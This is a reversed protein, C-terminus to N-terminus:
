AGESNLLHRRIFFDTLRFAADLDAPAPLAIDEPYRLFVPLPLLRNEYPLAEGHCVARGSKPSVHTLNDRTGTVACCALDLGYGLAELLAVQFHARVMGGTELPLNQLVKLFGQYLSPYPHHEPLVRSLLHCLSQLHSLADPLDLCLLLYSSPLGELTFWGLDNESRGKWSVSVRSGMQPQGRGKPLMGRVLGKSETWLCALLNKEGLLRASLFIGECRWEM